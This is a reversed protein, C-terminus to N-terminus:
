SPTSLTMVINMVSPHLMRLLCASEQAAGQATCMPCHSRMRYSHLHTQSLVLRLETDLTSPQYFPQRQGQLSFQRLFNLDKLRCESVHRETGLIQPQWFFQYPLFLEYENLQPLPMPEPVASRGRTRYLVHLDGASEFETCAM